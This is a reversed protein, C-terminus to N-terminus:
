TEDIESHLNALCSTVQELDNESEFLQAIKDLVVIDDNDKKNNVNIQSPRKLKKIKKTLRNM